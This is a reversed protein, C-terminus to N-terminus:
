NKSFICLSRFTRYNIIFIELFICKLFRITTITKLKFKKFFFEISKDIIKNWPQKTKIKPCTKFSLQKWSLKKGCDYPAKLCRSMESVMSKKSIIQLVIFHKEKLVYDFDTIFRGYREKIRWNDTLEFFVSKFTWCM